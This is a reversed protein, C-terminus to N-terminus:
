KIDLLGYIVSTIQGSLSYQSKLIFKVIFLFAASLMLFSYTIWERKKKSKIVPMWQFLLIIVYLLIVIFLEM